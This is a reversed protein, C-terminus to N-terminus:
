SRAGSVCRVALTCLRAPALMREAAEASRNDQISYLVANPTALLWV